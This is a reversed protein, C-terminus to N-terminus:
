INYYKAAHLLLTFMNRFMGEGTNAMKPHMCYVKRLFGRVTAENSYGYTVDDESGIVNCLFDVVNDLEKKDNEPMANKMQAEIAKVVNAELDKINKETIM